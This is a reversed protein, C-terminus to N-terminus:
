SKKLYAALNKKADSAQKLAKRLEPEDTEGYRLASIIGKVKDRADKADDILDLMKDKSRGKLERAKQTGEDILDALDVQANRLRREAEKYAKTSMNKIDERTEKGSKPATLLGAVYGAAVGIITGVLIKKGTERDM